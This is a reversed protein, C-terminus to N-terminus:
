REVGTRRKRAEARATWRANAVPSRGCRRLRETRGCGRGVPRRLRKRTWDTNALRAEGRQRSRTRLDDRIEAAARASRPRESARAVAVRLLRLRTRAHGSLVPQGSEAAPM